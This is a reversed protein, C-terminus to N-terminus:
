RAIVVADVALDRAKEIIELFPSGESIMTKVTVQSGAIEAYESLQSESQSRMQTIAHEKTALGNRVAFEALSSDIVHLVIVTADDGSALKVAQEFATYESM